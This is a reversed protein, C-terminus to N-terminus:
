KSTFKLIDADTIIGIFKRNEKVLVASYNILLNSISKISWDPEIEPFSLELIHSINVNILEPNKIIYKQIKKSTISGINQDKDLVPLQSIKNENMLKVADNLTSNPTISLIKITMVDKATTKSKKHKMKENELFDFILKIKSYPPDMTGNEIRSITSQSINLIEGLNKQSINLKQRLHKIESLEPLM